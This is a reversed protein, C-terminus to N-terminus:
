RKGSRRVSKYLNKHKKLFKIHPDQKIKDVDIINVRKKYWNYLEAFALKHPTFQFSKIEKLLRKNSATYENNLGKNLINIKSKFNSISNILQAISVLDTKKGTTVNYIKYKPKHTIFHEVIKALDNIYLYDFFVNKNISIPMKLLNKIISNSIFRYLYDEYKGYVGFLVLDYINKSNESYKACVYKYFGYADTPIKKDFDEEKISKLPRNKDYELGSGFYIIKEVFQSNRVINFFVRLNSHVIDKMGLDEKGGGVLACHLIVDIKNKIIYKRVKDVDLLDLQRHTPAFVKYNKQLYEKLNRGIFGSSGTIFVKKRNNKAM